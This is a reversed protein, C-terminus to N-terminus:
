IYLLHRIKGLTRLHFYSTKIIHSVHAPMSLNADIILGLDRVKEVIEIESEGIRNSNLNVSNRREKSGLLIAETRDDNLKLRNLTMWKKIEHPLPRLSLKITVSTSTDANESHTKKKNTHNISKKGLKM